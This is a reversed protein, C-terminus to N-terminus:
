IDVIGEVPLHDSLSPREDVSDWVPSAAVETLIKSSAGSRTAEDVAIFDVTVRDVGGTDSHVFTGMPENMPRVVYLPPHPFGRRRAAWPATIQQNKDSIAYFGHWSRVERSTIASNFDGLIVLHDCGLRLNHIAHRLLARSGGRDAADQMGQKSKAHVGVVAITKKDAPREFVAAVFENDEDNVAARVVELSPHHLLALGPVFRDLSVVAIARSALTPDSTRRAKAILSQGPLEQLCAIFLGKAGLRALHDVALDHATAASTSKGLNWTFLHILAVCRV